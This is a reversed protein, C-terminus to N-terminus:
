YICFRDATGARKRGSIGAGGQQERRDAKKGTSGIRSASSETVSMEEIAEEVSTESQQGLNPHSDFIMTGRLQLYRRRQVDKYIELLTRVPNEIHRTCLNDRAESQKGVQNGHGSRLHSRNLIVPPEGTVRVLLRNTPCPLVGKQIHSLLRAQDYHM